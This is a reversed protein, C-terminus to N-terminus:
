LGDSPRAAASSDQRHRGDLWATQPDHGCRYSVAVVNGRAGDGRQALYCHNGGLVGAVATGQQKVEADVRRQQRQVLVVLAVHRIREHPAQALAFRHRQNRIRARRQDAIGPEPEHARRM